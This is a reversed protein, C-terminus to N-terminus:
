VTYYPISVKVTWKARTIGRWGEGQHALEERHEGRPRHLKERCIMVEICTIDHMRDSELLSVADGAVLNACIPFVPVAVSIETYLDAPFGGSQFRRV